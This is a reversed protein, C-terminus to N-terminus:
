VALWISLTAISADILSDEDSRENKEKISISICRKTRLYSSIVNM